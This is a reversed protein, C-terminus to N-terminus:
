PKSGSFVDRLMIWELQNFLDEWKQLTFSKKTQEGSRIQVIIEFSIVSCFAKCGQCSQKTKSYWRKKSHEQQLMSHFIVQRLLHMFSAERPEIIWVDRGGTTECRNWCYISGWTGLKDDKLLNWFSRFGMLCCPLWIIGINQKAIPVTIHVVCCLLRM